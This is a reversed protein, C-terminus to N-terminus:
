ALHLFGASLRLIAFGCVKDLGVAVMYRATQFFTFTKSRANEPAFQFFVVVAIIGLSLVAASVRHWSKFNWAGFELSWRRNLNKTLPYVTKGSTHDFPKTKRSASQRFRLVIRAALGYLGLCRKLFVGFAVKKKQLPKKSLNKETRPQDGGLASAGRSCAKPQPKLNNQKM